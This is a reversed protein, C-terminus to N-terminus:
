VEPLLTDATPYSAQAGQGTAAFAGVRAAYCAATVLDDGADLRACLAGTFADGAGTTDVPTIHPTPIDVVGEATAVQAGRAGLTLVVSAFGARVLEAAPSETRSATAGHAHGLQELVLGAEHENVVLPDAKLLAAHEVDIVPALNVVLRGRSLEAAAAFGAAPIEGQLVVIDAEAIPAAHAHVFASDVLANAGPSVVITNEGSAAVTIVALGTTHTTRAVHNLDVGSSTLYSLATSAYPDSSASGVAGVFSVEAGLLAAAVAQNAGKGGATVEGGHGLLTEGPLPHRQAHIVLDANISGVVTISM